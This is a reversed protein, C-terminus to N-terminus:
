NNGYIVEGNKTISGRFCGNGRNVGGGLPLIGMAIDKLACELAKEIDNDISDEKSSNMFSQKNVLVKMVYEDEKGYVVQEDFLAGNLAGGTFRDISVHNLLKSKMGSKPTVIVDSFLVNGRKLKKADNDGFLSCVAVNQCGTQALLAEKTDAFFGCLRNYHYAVRHSLAGKVSTAPILVNNEQFRGESEGDSWVIVKETVPTMDAMENGFGSGFLFFDEAKLTLEYENWEEGLMKDTCINEATEWFPQEILSSTKQIYARLDEKKSLNLIRMQCSIILVEGFGNRTGGGLRFSCSTLTSLVKKFLDENAQEAVMEIEFCFRTGKYVVQEDFKGGKNAVGKQDICVHQRIPLHDFNQYFRDTFDIEQLGDLVKQDKGILQANSFIIESGNGNGDIPQFGFIKKTQEEGIWEEVSHRIVGALSTGPIYPLNNVDTVVLADTVMDDDGSGVSLPTQAELVIRALLRYSYNKDKGM